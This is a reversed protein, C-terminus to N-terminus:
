LVKVGGDFIIDAMCAHMCTDLDITHVSPISVLRAGSLAVCMEVGSAIKRTMGLYKPLQHFSDSM